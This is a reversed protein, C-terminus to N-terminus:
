KSEKNMKIYELFAKASQEIQTDILNGNSYGNEICRKKNISNIRSFPCRKCMQVSCVRGKSLSEATKIFIDNDTEKIDNRFKDFLEEKIM